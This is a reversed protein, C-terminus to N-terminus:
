TYTNTVLFRFVLHKRLYHPLHSIRAYFWSAKSTRICTLKLRFAFQERLLSVCDRCDTLDFQLQKVLEICQSVFKRQSVKRLYAKAKCLEAVDPICAFSVIRVLKALRLWLMSVSYSLLRKLKRRRVWVTSLPQIFFVYSQSHESTSCRFIGTPQFVSFGLPLRFASSACFAELLRGRLGTIRLYFDMTTRRTNSSTRFKKPFQKAIAVFTSLYLQTPLFLFDLWLGFLLRCDDLVELHRKSYCDFHENPIVNAYSDLRWLWSCVCHVTPFVCDLKTSVRNRPFRKMSVSSFM